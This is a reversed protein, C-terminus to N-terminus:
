VSRRKRGLRLCALGLALLPLIAPAPTPNPNPNGSREFTARIQGYEVIVGRPGSPTNVRGGDVQLYYRQNANIAVPTILPWFDDGNLGDEDRDDNARVQVFSNFDSPDPAEWLAFQLNSGDDDEDQTSGLFEVQVEGDVPAMIWAWMTNDLPSVPNGIIDEFDGDWWGNQQLYSPDPSGIAPEAEGSEVSAGNNDFDAIAGFALQGADAINDTFPVAWASGAAATVTATAIIGSIRKLLTM